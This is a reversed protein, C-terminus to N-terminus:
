EARAAARLRPDLALCVIDALLNLAVFFVIFSMLVAQMVPLDRFRIAEVFFAGLGQWAFVTEVVIAGIIMLAFQAAFTTVFPM